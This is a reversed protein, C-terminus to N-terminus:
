SDFGKWGFKFDVYGWSKHLLLLCLWIFFSINMEFTTKFELWKTKKKHVKTFNHVFVEKSAPIVVIL